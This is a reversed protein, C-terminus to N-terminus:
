AAFRFVYRVKSIVVKDCEVFLVVVRGVSREKGVTVKVKFVMKLENLSLDKFRM